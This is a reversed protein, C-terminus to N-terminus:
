KSWVLGFVALISFALICIKFRLRYVLVLNTPQICSFMWNTQSLQKDGNHKLLSYFYLYVIFLIVLIITDFM